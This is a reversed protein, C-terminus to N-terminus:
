VSLKWYASNELYAIDKALRETEKCRLIPVIDPLAFLDPSGAVARAESRFMASSSYFKKFLTKDWLPVEKGTSSNADCVDAIFDKFTLSKIHEPDLRWSTLEMAYAIMHCWFRTMTAHFSRSDTRASHVIFNRIAEEVRNFGDEVGYKTILVWAIRVHTYHDWIDLQYTDLMALFEDEPIDPRETWTLETTAASVAPVNVPFSPPAPLDLQSAPLKNTQSAEASPKSHVLNGSAASGSDEAVAPPVTAERPSKKAAAKIWAIIERVGEGSSVNAAMINWDRDGISPLELRQAVEQPSLAYPLDQKNAVVLLPVGRLTEDNMFTDLENKADPLREKDNSDVFLVLASADMTYHRWLPRIKDCGGIDWCKVDVNRSTLTEVNFGITPITTEINSPFISSHMQRAQYLFTTKGAADLGILIIRSPEAGWDGFIYSHLKSFGKAFM